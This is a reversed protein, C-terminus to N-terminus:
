DESANRSERAKRIFESIVTRADDPKEEHPIHGCQELVIFTSNPIDNHLQEGIQLPTIKDERGWLILTPYNLTRYRSSIEEINSPIIQKAIRRLSRRGGPLSLPESYAEIQNKTIKSDDYYALNLISKVNMKSPLINLGLAGLVPTRLLKIFKPLRQKYALSDILVLSSLRTSHQESLKIATYLAVGGGYSHGVLILDKLDHELIFRYVLDAQDQISYNNDNPKPSKGFGKLDILILQYDVVSIM